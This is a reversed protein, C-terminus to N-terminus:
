RIINREGICLSWNGGIRKPSLMFRMTNPIDSGEEQEFMTITYRIETDIDSYLSMEDVKYSLIPFTAYITKMKGAMSDPLAELSSLSDNYVSLMSIAADYDGSQVYILYEDLLAELALTDAQTRVMEADYRPNVPESTAVAEKEQQCAVLFLTASLAFLYRQLKM